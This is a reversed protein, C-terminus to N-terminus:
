RGEHFLPQDPFAQIENIRADLGEPHDDVCHYIDYANEEKSRNNLAQAKMM